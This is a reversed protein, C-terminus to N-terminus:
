RRLSFALLLFAVAVIWSGLVRVGTQVWRTTPLLSVYFAANVLCLVLSVWTAALIKATSVGTTGADAGSDLGLTLAASGCVILTVWFPTPAGSAVCAGICLGITTLIPQYLGGFSSVMTLGLGMAAAAAFIM